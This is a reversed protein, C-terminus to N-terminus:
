FEYLMCWTNLCASYILHGISVSSAASHLLQNVTVTCRFLTFNSIRKVDSISKVMVSKKKKNNYLHSAARPGDEGLLMLPQTVKM